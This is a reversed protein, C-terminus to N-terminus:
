LGEFIYTAVLVGDNDFLYAMDDRFHKDSVVKIGAFNPIQDLKDESIIGKRIRDEIKYSTLLTNRIHSKIM